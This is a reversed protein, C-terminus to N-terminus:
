HEGATGNYQQKKRSLHSNQLSVAGELPVTLEYAM